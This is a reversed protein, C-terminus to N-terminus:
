LASRYMYHIFLILQFIIDLYSQMLAVLEFYGYSISNDLCCGQTMKASYNQIKPDAHM